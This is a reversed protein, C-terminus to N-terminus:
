SIRIFRNPQLAIHINALADTPLVSSPCHLPAQGVSRLLQNTTLLDDTRIRNGALSKRLITYAMACLYRSKPLCEYEKTEGSYVCQSYRFYWSGSRVIRFNLLRSRLELMSLFDFPSEM